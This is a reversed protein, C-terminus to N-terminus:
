GTRAAKSEILEQGGLYPRLADPIRVSGDPQVHNELIALVARDTIGHTETTM